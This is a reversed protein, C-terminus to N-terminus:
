GRDGGIDSDDEPDPDVNKAGKGSFLAVGFRAIMLVLVVGIVVSIPIKAGAWGLVMWFVFLCAAMLLADRTAHLLRTGLKARKAYRYSVTGYAVADRKAKQRSDRTGEDAAKGVARVYAGAKKSSARASDGAQKALDPAQKRATNEAAKLYTKWDAM